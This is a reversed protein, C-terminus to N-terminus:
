ALIDNIVELLDEMDYPKQLFHYGKKRLESKDVKKDTYGSTLIVNLDSKERTIKDALQDGRLGPMIVDSVMLEINEKNEEFVQIAQQPNKTIFTEFNNLRLGDEVFSLLDQDDEVLLVGEGNGTYGTEYELEKSNQTKDQKSAPFYIEFTTGKGVESEVIIDGKHKKIIGHVVSLGMGTGEGMEKTTFFPDFINELVDEEIGKGTDEVKMCLYQGEKLDTTKNDIDEEEIYVNETQINLEGGDEMADRANVVLNTVVQELQSEDGKIEVPNEELEITISIDEGILRKLMKELDSIIRNLNIIRFETEHKRSFLLLQRTLNAAKNSSQQIQKLTPYLPDSEDTKMIGMQARGQIVTLINNFDHAIGGALQGISELKQTQMMRKRMEEKEKEAQKRKTIDRGISTVAVIENQSNKQATNSWEIIRKEGDKTVIPNENHAPLDDSQILDHFYNRMEERQEEPVFKDFWNEGIIQEKAWGSLQLFFQNCYIVEGDKNLSIAILKMSELLNRFKNESKELAQQAEKRATIDRAISLIAEEGRYEIISSNIETPIRNGDKSVHVTEFVAGGDELIKGIRQHVKQAYKEADIQQPKMDRYEEKSYGLREIAERNVELFNGEMDIVFVADGMNNILEQYRRRSQMLEVQQRKSETINLFFAVSKKTAPIMAVTVLVDKRNGEKDIIQAEYQKPVTEGQRRGEHYREIKDLQDDPVLATWKEQDELKKRNYGTINEFQNNVLYFTKDENIICTATGTNEFITKYLQRNKEIKKSVKASETIDKIHCQIFKNKDIEYSNTTVAVTKKSGQETKLPINKYHLKRDEWLSELDQRNSIIDHFSDVKWVYQGILTKPSSEIIDQIHENTDVIKGSSVAILIIGDQKIDFLREYKSKRTRVQEVSGGTTTNMIVVAFQNEESVSIHTHDLVLDAYFSRNGKRLMKISFFQREKQQSTLKKHFNFDEEHDTHIFDTFTSNILANKDYELLKEAEKNAHQIRGEQNIILYGFPALKYLEWYEENREKFKRNQDELNKNKKLLSEVVEQIKEPDTSNIEDTNKSLFDEVKKELPEVNNM